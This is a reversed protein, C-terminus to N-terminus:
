FALRCAIKLAAKQMFRTGYVDECSERCLRILNIGVVMPVTKNYETEYVVLALINHNQQLGSEGDPITIDVEVFGHYPVVTDAAGTVQILDNLSFM